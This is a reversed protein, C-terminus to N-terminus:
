PLLTSIAQFLDPWQSTVAPDTQWTIMAGMVPGTLVPVLVGVAPAAAIPAGGVQVPPRSARASGAHFQHANLAQNDADSPVANNIYLYHVFKSPAGLDAYAQRVRRTVQKNAIFPPAYASCVVDKQGTTVILPRPAIL